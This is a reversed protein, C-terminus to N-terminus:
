YGRLIIHIPVGRMTNHEPGLLNLCVGLGESNLGIKGVIGAETAMLINPRPTQDIELLIVGPNIEPSLGLKTSVM